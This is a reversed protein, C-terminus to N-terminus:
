DYIVALNFIKLASFIDSKVEAWDGLKHRFSVYSEVSFKSNAINRADLSLTYRFRHSNDASTNSLDSYSNVSVSGNIHQKLGTSKDKSADSLPSAKEKVPTKAVTAEVPPKDSKLDKTKVKAIVYDAVSPTASTIATCICSLSSLNNVTLLPIMSGNSKAFLTDGASIGVTSKFKVYVNRSSVFSVQGQLVEVGAQGKLGATIVIFYFILIYQKM